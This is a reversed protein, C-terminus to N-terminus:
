REYGYLAGALSGGVVGEIRRISEPPLETRWKSASVLPNKNVSYYGEATGDISQAIFDACQPHWGLGIFELMQRGIAQPERCVDEYRLVLVNVLGDLQALAHDNFIRWRWALVEEATMSSLMAPTLGAQRGLSSAYLVELMGHDHQPGTEASFEGGQQGRLISSVHACPHRLLFIARTEPMARALLGLRGVSEISKWVLRGTRAPALLFGPVAVRLGLRAAVKGILVNARLATAGVGGGAWAKAFLPQKGCVRLHRIGGLEGAFAQIAQRAAEDELDPLLPAGAIQILSDPEHRYDACPHSDLIKAVWTTGSRPMGFLVSLPKM